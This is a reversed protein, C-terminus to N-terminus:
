LSTHMTSFHSMKCVEFMVQINHLADKNKSFNQHYIKNLTIVLYM